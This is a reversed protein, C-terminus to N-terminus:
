REGEERARGRGPADPSIAGARARVARESSTAPQAASLSLPAARGYTRARVCVGRRESAGGGGAPPEGGGGGGGGSPEAVSQSEAQCCNLEWAPACGILGFSPWLACGEVASVNQSEDDLRRACASSSSSPPVKLSAGGGWSLSPSASRPRPCSASSEANADSFPNSTPIPM